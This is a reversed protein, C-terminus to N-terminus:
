KWDVEMAPDSSCKCNVENPTSMQTFWLLETANKSILDAHGGECNGAILKWRIKKGIRGYAAWLYQKAAYANKLGRGRKLDVWICHGCDMVMVAAPTAGGQVASHSLCCLNLRPFPLQSEGRSTCERFRKGQLTIECSYWTDGAGIGCWPQELEFSYLSSIPLGRFITRSSSQPIDCKSSSLCM